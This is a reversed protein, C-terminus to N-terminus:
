KLTRLFNKADEILSYFDEYRRNVFNTIGLGLLVILFGIGYLFRTKM